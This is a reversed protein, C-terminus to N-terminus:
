SKRTFTVRGKKNSRKKNPKRDQMAENDQALLRQSLGGKEHPSKQLRRLLLLSFRGGNNTHRNEDGILLQQMRARM